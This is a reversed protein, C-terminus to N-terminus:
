FSYASRISSAQNDVSPSELGLRFCIFFLMSGQYPNVADDLCFAATIFNRPMSSFYGRRNPLSPSRIWSSSICSMVLCLELPREDPENEEDVEPIRYEGLIM